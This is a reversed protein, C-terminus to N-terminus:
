AAPTSSRKTFFSLAAKTTGIALGVGADLLLVNSTVRTLAVGPSSEGLVDRTLYVLQGRVEGHALSSCAKWIVVVVAPGSAVQGSAARVISTYDPTKKIVKPDINARRALASQAIGLM